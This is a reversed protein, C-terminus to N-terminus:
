LIQSLNKNKLYGLVNKEKNGVVLYEELREQNSKEM